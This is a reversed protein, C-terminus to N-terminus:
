RWRRVEQLLAKGTVKVGEPDQWIIKVETGDTCRILLGGDHLTLANDIVKGHLAEGIPGRQTGTVLVRSPAHLTTDAPESKM